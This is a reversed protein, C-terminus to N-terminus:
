SETIAGKAYFNANVVKMGSWTLISRWQDGATNWNIPTTMLPIFPAYVAGTTLWDPGKCGVLFKTSTYDLNQIVKWQDDLEGIVHMGVPTKDPYKVKAFLDRPLGKIVKCFEKGAIVFNATVKRVADEIDTSIFGLTGLIEQRHTVYPITTSPPTKDYEYATGSNVTASDYLLNAMEIAIENMVGSLVKETLEKEMDKGHEKQLMIASDIM